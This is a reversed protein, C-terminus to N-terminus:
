KKREHLTAVLQTYACRKGEADAFARVININDQDEAKLRTNEAQLRKVELKLAANCDWPAVHPRTQKLGCFECVEM